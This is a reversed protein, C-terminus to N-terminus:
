ITRGHSAIFHCIERTSIASPTVRTPSDANRQCSWREAPVVMQAHDGQGLAQPFDAREGELGAVGTVAVLLVPRRHVPKRFDRDGVAHGVDGPHREGVVMEQRGYVERAIQFGDAERALRLGGIPVGGFTHALDEVIGRPELVPHIFVIHGAGAALVDRPPEFLRAVADPEMDVVAARHLVGGFVAGLTGGVGLKVPKHDRPGARRVIRLVADRDEIEEPDVDALDDHLLAHGAEPFVGKGAARFDPLNIQRRRQFADAFVGEPGVPVQGVDEVGIGSGPLVPVLDRHVVAVVREQVGREMQMGMRRALRDPLMLHGCGAFRGAAILEDDAARVAAGLQGSRGFLDLGEAMVVSRRFIDPALVVGNADCLGNARAVLGVHQLFLARGGNAAVVGGAGLVADGNVVRMKFVFAKLRLCLGDDQGGGAVSVAFRGIDPGLVQAIARGFLDAFVVLVVDPRFLGFLGDHLARFGGTGLVSRDDVGGAEPVLAQGRLHFGDGKGRQPVVVHGHGNRGGAGLAADCRMGAGAAAVGIRRVLDRRQPVVVPGHGDRGGAGLAADCRMGAGAAAVGIGRVLDRRGPVVVHGYGNRGGAGLAADCRMGAGAAAVGVRRVLDRRGPVGRGRGDAFVFRGGGGVRRLCPVLDHVARDAPRLEATGMLGAFRERGLLGGGGAVHIKVPFHGGGIGSEREPGGHPQVVM